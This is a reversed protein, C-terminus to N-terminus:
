GDSVAATRDTRGPGVIRLRFRPRLRDRDIPDHLDERATSPEARIRGWSRNMAARANKKDGMPCVAKVEAEAATPQIFGFYRGDTRQTGARPHDRRPVSEACSSTRRSDGRGVTREETTLCGVGRMGPKGPMRWVLTM